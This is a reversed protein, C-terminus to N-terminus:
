QSPFYEDAFQFNLQPDFLVLALAKEITYPTRRLPNAEWSRKPDPILCFFKTAVYSPDSLLDLQSIFLTGTGNFSRPFFPRWLGNPQVSQGNVDPFGAFTVVTYKEKTWLRV